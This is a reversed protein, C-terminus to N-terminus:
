WKPAEEMVYAKGCYPCSVLVGLDTIRIDKSSLPAGCGSCKMEQARTDGGVLDTAKIEVKQQINVPRASERKEVYIVSGIFGGAIIFLIVAIVLISLQFDPTFSALLFILGLLVFFVGAGILIGKLYGRMLFLVTGTTNFSSKEQFFFLSGSTPVKPGKPLIQVGYPGFAPFFSDSLM